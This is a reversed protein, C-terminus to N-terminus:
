GGFHWYPPYTINLRRGFPDKGELGGTIMYKDEDSLSAAAAHMVEMLVRTYESDGPVGIGATRTAQQWADSTSDRPHVGRRGWEATQAEEFRRRAAKMTQKFLRKDVRGQRRTAFM